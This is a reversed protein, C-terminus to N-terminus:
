GSPDHGCEGLVFKGNDCTDSKGIHWPCYGKEQKFHPDTDANINCEKDSLCWAPDLRLVGDKCSDYIEQASLGEILRGGYMNMMGQLCYGFIFAAFIMFVNRNKM